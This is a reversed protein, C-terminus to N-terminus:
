KGELMLKYNAIQAKCNNVYGINWINLSITKELRSINEKIENASM